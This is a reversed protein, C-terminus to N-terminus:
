SLKRAKALWKQWWKCVGLVAARGDDKRETGDPNGMVMTFVWFFGATWASLTIVFSFFPSLLLVGLAMGVSYFRTDEDEGLPHDSDTETQIWQTSSSRHSTSPRMRVLREHIHLAPALMDCLQSKFSANRLYQTPPCLRLPSVLIVFLLAFFTYLCAGLSYMPVPASLRLLILLADQGQVAPIDTAVGRKGKRPPPPQDASMLSPHDAWSSQSREDKYLVGGPVVVRTVAVDNEARSSRRSTQPSQALSRRPHSSQLSGEYHGGDVSPRWSGPRSQDLPDASRDPLPGLISSRPATNLPGQGQLFAPSYTMEPAQM